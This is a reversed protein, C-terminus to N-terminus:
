KRCYKSNWLGALRKLTFSLLYSFTQKFFFICNMTDLYLNSWTAEITKPYIVFTNFTMSIILQFLTILFIHYILFLILLSMRLPLFVLSPVMVSIFETIIVPAPFWYDILAFLFLVVACMMFLLRIM